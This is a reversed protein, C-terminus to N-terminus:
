IWGKNREKYLDNVYLMAQEWIDADKLKKDSKNLKFLRCNGNAFGDMIEETLKSNYNYDDNFYLGLSKIMGWFFENAGGDELYEREIRCALGVMMELVSCPGERPYNYHAREFTGRLSIGDAARNEDLDISWRFEYGDLDFLLKSYYRSDYQDDCVLSVLWKYYRNRM